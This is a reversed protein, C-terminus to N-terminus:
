HSSNRIILIEIERWLPSVPNSETRDSRWSCAQMKKGITQPATAAAERCSLSMIKWFAAFCMQWVRADEEENDDERSRRQMQSKLGKAKGNLREGKMQLASLKDHEQQIAISNLGRFHIFMDGLWDSLSRVSITVSPFQVLISLFFPSSLHSSYSPHLPSGSHSIFDYIIRRTRKRQSMWLSVSSKM